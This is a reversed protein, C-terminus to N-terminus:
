RTFKEVQYDITSADDKTLIMDSPFTTNYFETGEKVIDNDLYKAVISTAYRAQYVLISYYNLHSIRISMFWHSYGPLNVHFREVITDVFWKGLAEYDYRYVCYYVYSLVVFQTRDLANMYYISIHCQYQIFGAKILGETLYDAFLKGSNTM